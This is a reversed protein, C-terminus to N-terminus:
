LVGQLCPGKRTFLPTCVWVGTFWVQSLEESLRPSSLTDHSRTACQTHNTIMIRMAPLPSLREQQDFPRFDATFRSDGTGWAPNFGNTYATRPYQLGGNWPPALSLLAHILVTIVTVLYVWEM